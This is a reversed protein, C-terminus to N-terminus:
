EQKRSYRGIFLVLVLLAVMASIVGIGFNTIGLIAIGIVGVITGMIMFDGRGAFMLALAAILFFAALLGSSGWFGGTSDRSDFYVGDGCVVTFDNQKLKGIVIYENGNLVIEVTRNYVNTTCNNYIETNGYITRRYAIICGEIDSSDEPNASWVMRVFNPAIKTLTCPISALGIQPALETGGLDVYITVDTLAEIHCKTFGNTEEYLVGDITIDYSYAQTLLQINVNGVGSIIPISEVLSKSGDDNCKFIRMTGEILDFNTSFWNFTVTSSNAISILYFSRNTYPNNSIAIPTASDIDVVRTIYSGASLTFSGWLNWNYTTNLPNLNTCLRNTNANIFSGTQNYYYTGDWITIDYTNTANMVSDNVEDYYTFNIITYNISSNCVTIEIDVIRQSKTTTTINPSIELTWNHTIDIYNSFDLSPTSEVVYTKNGDSLNVISTTTFQTENWNLTVNIETNIGYITLNLTTIFDNFIYPRFTETANIIYFNYTETVVSSDTIYGDAVKITLNHLGVSLNSIVRNLYYEYFTGDMSTNSFIEYNDITINLSYLFFNDTFNFFGTINSSQYWISNNTFNTYALEPPTTDVWFTNTSTTISTTNDFCSIHYNWESEALTKTYEAKGMANIQFYLDGVNKLPCYTNNSTAVGYPYINSDGGILGIASGSGNNQKIIIAYEKNKVLNNLSINFTTNHYSSPSYFVGIDLMYYSETWLLTNGDYISLNLSLNSNGSPQYFVLTLTDLFTSNMKFTQNIYNNEGVYCDSHGDSWNWNTYNWDWDNQDEYSPKKTENLTGNIYLSCNTDSYTFNGEISININNYDFYTANTPSPSSLNITNEVAWWIAEEYIQRPVDSGGYNDWIDVWSGNYCSWNVESAGASSTMVRLNLQTSNWNWCTTNITLNIIEATGSANGGKVQWLSSSNAISPKSYNFYIYAIENYKAGAWTDWDEDYALACEEGTGFLGSCSISTTTEQYYWGASVIPLALLFLFILLIKKSM